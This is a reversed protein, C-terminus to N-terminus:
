SEDLPKWTRRYSLVDCTYHPALICIYPGAATGLFIFSIRGCMACGLHDDAVVALAQENMQIARDVDNVSGMAVFRDLLTIASNHLYVWREPHNIPISAIAEESVSVARHLDNIRGTHNFRKVLAQGLNILYMCCKSTDTAISAVALDSNRIARELDDRSRMWEYRSLLANVLKNLHAPRVPDDLPTHAVTKELRWPMIYTMWLVLDNLYAGGLSGWVIRM